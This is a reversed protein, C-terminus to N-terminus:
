VLRYEPCKQIASDVSGWDPSDEELLTTLKGASQISAILNEDQKQLRTKESIQGPFSEPLVHSIAQNLVRIHNIISYPNTESHPNPHPEGCIRCIEMECMRVEAVVSGEPLIYPSTDSVPDERLTIINEEGTNGEPYEWCDRLEHLLDLNQPLYIAQHNDFTQFNETRKVNIHNISSIPNQEGGGDNVKPFSQFVSDEHIDWHEMQSYAESCQEMAYVYAMQVDPKQYGQDYLVCMPTPSAVNHMNKGRGKAEFINSGTSLFQLLQFGETYRWYSAHPKYPIIYVGRFSTGLRSAEQQQASHYALTKRIINDHMPPFAYVNTDRWRHMFADDSTSWHNNCRANLGRPDSFADTWDSLSPTTQGNLQDYQQIKHMVKDFQTQQLQWNERDTFYPLIYNKRIKGVKKCSPQVMQIPETSTLLQHSIGQYLHISLKVHDNQCHLVCKVRESLKQDLDVKNEILADPNPIHM